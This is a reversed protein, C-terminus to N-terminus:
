ITLDVTYIKLLCLRPSIDATKSIPATIAQWPPVVGRALVGVELGADGRVLVGVKCGVGEGVSIISVGM